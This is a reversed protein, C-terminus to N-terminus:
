RIFSTIGATNTESSLVAPLLPRLRLKYFRKSRNFGVADYKVGDNTATRVIENLMADTVRFNRNFEAFPMRKLEAKHAEYYNFAYERILNRSLLESLYKTNFTTDLPVFYDPMIGGGGYVTRGRSTQYKLSDNFRISDPTFFEGHEFRKVLDEDYAGEEGNPNYPKQISRGSPTYYRSITLRLQSGDSLDIPQQVLGKGFTRRGVILARDNDQLAGAVIESASASGEDVLVILAGREFIGKKSALYETDYREGKGDTYVIKPIVPWCSM